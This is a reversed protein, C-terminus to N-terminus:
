DQSLTKERLMMCQYCLFLLKVSTSGQDVNVEDHCFKTGVIEYQGLYYATNPFQLFICGYPRELAPVYQSNEGLTM